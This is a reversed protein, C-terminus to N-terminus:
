GGEAEVMGEYSGAILDADTVGMEGMMWQVRAHNREEEEPTGDFVAELEIFTGLGDVEDVHIRVNEHLLIERTKRVVRHVGLMTTLMAKLGTADEVAILQYDSRRPGDDDARFYAVLQGGSLSSERLKLRGERTVFYTDVQRDIGVTETALARARAPERCRAKIEINSRM